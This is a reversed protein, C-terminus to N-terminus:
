VAPSGARRVPRLPRAPRAARAPVEELVEHTLERLLQKLQLLAKRGSPTCRYYRRVKGNVVESSSKLLGGEELGHLLPYLTGPSLRYGHTRLEEIMEAGYVREKAAHHLIHVRIFGRFTERFIDAM